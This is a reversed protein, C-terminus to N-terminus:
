EYPSAINCHRYTVSLTLSGVQECKTWMLFWKTVNQDFTSEWILTYSGAYYILAYSYPQM